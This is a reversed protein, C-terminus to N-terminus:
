KRPALLLSCARITPKIASCCSPWVHGLLRRARRMNSLWAHHDSIRSALRRLWPRGSRARCPYCRGM